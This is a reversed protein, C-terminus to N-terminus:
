GAAAAHSLSEYAPASAGAGFADDLEVMLRDRLADADAPQMCAEDGIYYFRVDGNIAYVVIGLVRVTFAHLYIRLDQLRFPADDGCLDLNGLNTLAFRNWSGNMRLANGFRVFSRFQGPTPARLMECFHYRSPIGQTEQAIQEHMSRHIERAQAWFGADGGQGTRFKLSGGGFFLQDDALAAIRGRRGDIPSEIWAPVKDRALVVALARDLAVLLGAHVSVGEAKCRQRLALSRAPGASWELHYEHNQLPKGSSPILRMLGNFARAAWRRKWPRAPRYDGAVDRTTPARYPVLEDDAHLARLVERVIVLVSMGDCIRHSTCFLLESVAEGRLWVMRLQPLDFAFPAERETWAERRYDDEGRREVICLPIEGAADEEYWLGDPEERILARLAPHKRQVQALAERLRAEDIRGALRVVYVINGDILHELMSLKRKM